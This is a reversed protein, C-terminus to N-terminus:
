GLKQYDAETQLAFVNVKYNHNNWITQSGKMNGRRTLKMEL